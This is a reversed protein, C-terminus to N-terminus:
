NSSITRDKNQKFPLSDGTTALVIAGFMVVCGTLERGSLKQGLIIWGALASFVSELSLILSAVTPNMGKQGVIQLTYGVGCSMFGAYLIPIAAQLIDSLSPREWFLIFPLSILGVFFFQMCSLVVGDVFQTFYDIVLIHATFALACLFVLTDGASLSLSEKMCLLYLGFMGLIASVLVPLTIKKRFIFASVIPVFIIYLATIFGAKGVTTKEIGFQQLTSGFLLCIGCCIGGILGIYRTNNQVSDSKLIDAHAADPTNQTTQETYESSKNKYLILPLLAFGGLISRLGNFTFPRIVESASSQAVFAIGWVLAALSLQFANKLKM